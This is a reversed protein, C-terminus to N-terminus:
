IKQFNVSLGTIVATSPSGRRHLHVCTVSRLAPATYQLGTHAPWGGHWGTAKKDTETFIFTIGGRHSCCSCVTAVQPPMWWMMSVAVCIGKRKRSTVELILTQHTGQPRQIWSDLTPFDLLAFFSYPAPPNCGQAWRATRTVHVWCEEGRSSM